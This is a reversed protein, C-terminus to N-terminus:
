MKNINHTIAQLHCLFSICHSVGGLMGCCRLSVGAHGDLCRGGPPWPPRSARRARVHMRASSRHVAFLACVGFM